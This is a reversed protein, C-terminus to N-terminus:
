GHTEIQTLGYGMDPIRGGQLGSSRSDRRDEVGEDSVRCFAFEGGSGFAPFRPRDDKRNKGSEDMESKARFFPRFGGSKAGLEKLYLLKNTITSPLGM